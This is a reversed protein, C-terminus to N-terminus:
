LKKHYAIVGSIINVLKRVKSLDYAAAQIIICINEEPSAM